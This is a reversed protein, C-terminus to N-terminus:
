VSNIVETKTIESYYVKITEKYKLLISSKIFFHQFVCRLDTYKLKSSGGKNSSEIMTKFHLPVELFTM